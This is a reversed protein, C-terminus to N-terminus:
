CLFDLEGKYRFRGGKHVTMLVVTLILRQNFKLQVAEHANRAGKKQATKGERRQIIASYWSSTGEPPYSNRTNRERDDWIM